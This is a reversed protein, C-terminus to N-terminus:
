NIKEKKEKRRKIRKQDDCHDDDTITTTKKQAIKITIKNNTLKCVCVSKLQNHSLHPPQDSRSPSKLHRKSRRTIKKKDGDDDDDDGELIMM